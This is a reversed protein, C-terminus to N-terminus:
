FPLSPLPPPAPLPMSALGSQIPGIPFNCGGCPGLPMGPLSTGFQSLLDLYPLIPIPPVQVQMSAALNVAGNQAAQAGQSVDDIRPLADLQLQLDQLHLPMPIKMRAIFQLMANIRGIGAPTLADEGFAKKITALDSLKDLLAQLEDLPLPLHPLPLTSLIGLQSLLRKLLQPDSIPPLGMAQPATAAPAMLALHRALQLKPLPLAFPPLTLRPLTAAFNLATSCTGRSSDSSGLETEFSYDLGALAMPCIGRARLALTMNAALKLNQLQRPSIAPIARAAPLLNAVLSLVAQQIHALLGRPDALPFAPAILALKAAMSIMFGGGPPLVAPLRIHPARANLTARMYVDPSMDPLMASLKMDARAGNGNGQLGLLNLLNMMQPPVVRVSLNTNAAVSPLRTPNSKCFCPM